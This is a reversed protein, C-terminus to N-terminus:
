GVTNTLDKVIRYASARGIGLRKAIETPTVGQRFLDIVATAQARATPQRGRYKGEAKARAIGERQRELMVEREFEAVAGMVSLLLWKPRRTYRIRSMPTIRKCEVETEYMM